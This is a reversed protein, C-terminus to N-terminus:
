ERIDQGVALELEALALMHQKIGELYGAGTKYYYEFTKVIEENSLNSSEINKMERNLADWTDIRLATEKQWFMFKNYAQTVQLRIGDEIAARKLVTQRQEARKQKLQTGYDYGIPLKMALTVQFNEDRLNDQGLRDYGLGLMIDPYRKALSLKVAINDMELKYLASKLEPRYEMAWLTIKTLDVEGPTFEFGGSIFIRSNLEKNLVSLLKLHAASLEEEVKNIEGTLSAMEAKVLIKEWPKFRGKSIIKEARDVTEKIITQKRQLFLYEFFAEKTRYIVSSKVAEYRSMAEKLGANAIGVTSSTRGGTYLYQTAAVGVGYFLDNKSHNDEQTILRLGLSEPLITPYDLNYATAGANLSVQPLYLFRAEKLRQEAIVVDQETLLLEYNNELALRIANELSIPDKDDSSYKIRYRQADAAAACLAALTFIIFFRKIM